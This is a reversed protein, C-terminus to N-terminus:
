SFHANFSGRESINAPAITRRSIPCARTLSVFTNNASVFSDFFEIVQSVTKAQIWCSQGSTGWILVFSSACRIAVPPPRDRQEDVHSSPLFVFNTVQGTCDPCFSGALNHRSSARRCVRLCDHEVTRHAHSRGSCRRPQYSGSSLIDEVQLSRDESPRVFAPRQDRIIASRM